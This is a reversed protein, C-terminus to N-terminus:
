EGGLSRVAAPFEEVHFSRLPADRLEPYAVDEIARISAAAKAAHEPSVDLCIGRIERLIAAFAPDVIGLGIVARLGAAFLRDWPLPWDSGSAGVTRPAEPPTPGLLYLVQGEWDIPLAEDSNLNVALRECTARRAAYLPGTISVSDGPVLGSITEVSLPPNLVVRENSTPQDSM